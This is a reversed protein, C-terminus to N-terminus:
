KRPLPKVGEFIVLCRSLLWNGEMAMELMLCATGEKGAFQIRGRLLQFFSLNVPRQFESLTAFYSAALSGVLDTVFYVPHDSSSLTM